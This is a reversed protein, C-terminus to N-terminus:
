VNIYDYLSEYIEILEYEEAMVDLKVKSERNQQKKVKISQALKSSAKFELVYHAFTPPARYIRKEQESTGPHSPANEVMSTVKLAKDLFIIKLNFYTDPMWFYKKSPSEFAFFLGQHDLVQEPRIGSFGRQIEDDSQLIM